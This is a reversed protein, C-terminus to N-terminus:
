KVVVVIRVTPYPSIEAMLMDSFIRHIMSIIIPTMEKEKVVPGREEIM